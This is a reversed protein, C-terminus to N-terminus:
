PATSSARAARSRTRSRRRACRRRSCAPRTTRATCCRSTRGSSRTPRAGMPASRVARSACRSSADVVREAEHEEGDCELLVIPDGEGLDSWLKKEYLKPNHGIVCNAARLISGTSRYNQELAIVKLRPFDQPLRRLNDITAGRWGYISQDDDGVATFM